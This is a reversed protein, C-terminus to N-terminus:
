RPVGGLKEARTKPGFALLQPHEKLKDFDLESLPTQQRILSTYIGARAVDGILIFGVLKGDRIVLKKYSAKEQWVLEQGDYSGATVMHLHFFGIANMPIANDFPAHHGAMAQGAAEGQLYANPLIAM